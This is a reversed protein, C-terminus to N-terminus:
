FLVGATQNRVLMVAFQANSFTGTTVARTYRRITATNLTQLRQATPLTAATFTLGTVDAFTANDASDQIKVTVSTGTMAFVQLYAQAGFASSALGDYGTGNTAVTDTRIGATLQEGWELGFGDGQMSASFTLMGSQERNPDYNIQRAILGAAAGGIATGRLYMCHVDGSPLASFTKFARGVSPNFWSSFDIGGDRLLGLRSIASQTIDTVEGPAPGGHISSLSGIDGSVDVGNVFFRDGLGSQKAMLSGADM